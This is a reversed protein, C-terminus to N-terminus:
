VNTEMDEPRIRCVEFLMTETVGFGRHAMGCLYANVRAKTAPMLPLYAM